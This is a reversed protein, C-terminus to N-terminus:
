YGLATEGQRRAAGFITEDGERKTEDVSAPRFLAFREM